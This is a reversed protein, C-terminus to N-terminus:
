VEVFGVFNYYINITRETIGDVVTKEGVEIKSILRVLTPRDLEELQTYDRIISLWDDVAKVDTASEALKNSLAQKSELKETREAEYQKLLKICIDEPIRGMVKDEYAAQVLKELEGLRKDLANLSVQMAKTQEMSVAERAKLIKAKLGEPDNMAYIAKSRIDMTVLDVLVRQNIHHSTCASKGGCCYRNCVYAEYISQPTGDKKKRSDQYHRMTSQCDMCRILGSFLFITGSKGTRGRAPHKDLSQVHDWLEQSILPEHTNEVKIWQDRPKSIQKHNKYSITGTKNQVMHGIYVENRLITKVTVDNWFPTEGRLNERGEAMYYFTRPAPVGEDNFTRAIKRFSDGQARMDFIRRVIPATVPDIILKHKDEPSKKYGLPAYCGVYKGSKFTSQKVAKIKSSTDRAYLDNMVNKLIVTMENNKRITDVGDNLAIFRCGLSPFVFDTYRGAEIYDRGLRSLDKCLVLNIKGDTADQVLRNFGPRDFTTGSVGDDLYYSYLNWGQERVYRTLLEKQNEISVSEGQREDDRSLRAYIGVNYNDQM